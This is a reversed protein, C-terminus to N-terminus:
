RAGVPHALLQRHHRAPLRSRVMAPVLALHYDQVLVIPDPRRAESLVADAFRGNATRYHEWDQESFSPRVHAMHCVPWLGSNSFGDYYGLQEEVALWIRRLCFGGAAPPVQWVAGEDVPERDADGGGHAIWTGACACVIPEVAAVMGSAPQTIRVGGNVREHIYPERNSVVIIQDGALTSSLLASM